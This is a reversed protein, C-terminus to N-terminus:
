IYEDGKSNVGIAQIEFTLDGAHATAEKSVLWGFTIKDSSYQVNIPSANNEYKQATVFHILLTMKMLDMGDYFRNMRFPIFQSNSEQTLNIQNQSVNINKSSDVESFDNDSYDSYWLYKESVTFEDNNDAFVISSVVPTPEDMAFTSVVNTNEKLEKQKNKLSDNFSLAM